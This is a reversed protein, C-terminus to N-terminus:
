DINKSWKKLIRIRDEESPKGIKKGRAQNCLNCATVLNEFSKDGSVHRPILHEVTARLHIPATQSDEVKVKCWWCRYKDRHFVAKRRSVFRKSM